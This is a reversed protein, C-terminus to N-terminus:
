LVLSSFDYQVKEVLAMDLNIPYQREMEIVKGNTANLEGDLYRVKVVAADMRAKTM